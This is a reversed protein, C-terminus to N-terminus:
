GTRRPEQASRKPAESRRRDRGIVRRRRGGGSSGHAFATPGFLGVLAVATTAVLCFVFFWWGVGTTLAIAFGVAWLGMALVFAVDFAPQGHPAAVDNAAEDPFVDLKGKWSAVGVERPPTKPPAGRTEGETAAADGALKAKLTEVEDPREVAIPLKGRKAKLIELEDEAPSGTSPAGREVSKTKLVNRTTEGETEAATRTLKAKLTEVEDPREVDVPGSPRGRKAKLIELEDEAPSSTSAPRVDFEAKV